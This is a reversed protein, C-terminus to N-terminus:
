KVPGLFNTKAEDVLKGNSWVEIELKTKRSDLQNEPMEIFFVGKLMGGKPVITAADGVFKIRGNPAGKLKFEINPFDKTTKNIVEYNYLNSLYGGEVKQYLQGPTRLLVTEVETRTAFLFVQVAILATLVGTYAWVRTTFIKRRGEKIGTESDYRILGKPRNVKTMVDDCADMCATCNVCELQTGNRIDIGTPCVHVCLKCDICDGKKTPLEATPLEGTQTESQWSGVTSQRSIKGRPEGRVYDYHVVISDPVLLVGQLRGYPCVAICVQERMYSFVFFFIGSFVLLAMFGGLHLGIPDTAIKLVKDSGIIYMLFTNAILLAIAYFIAYKSVRKFMKQGTWPAAALKRQQGADGDIWYEIKRFVMEMFITQPCIWGCFLRGFVVTFLVVFLMFTVMALAFLHMDQPTFVISFIIFKRELVNFLLLPEGNVRIFPMGFLLALLAFSVWTRAKYFWGGPKKPYMWVRKGKKDVTALHDRYEETDQYLEDIINM